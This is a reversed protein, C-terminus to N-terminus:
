KSASSVLSIPSKTGDEKSRIKTFSAECTESKQEVGELSQSDVAFAAAAIAATHHEMDRSDYDLRM